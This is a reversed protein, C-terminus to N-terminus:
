IISPLCHHQAFCLICANGHDGSAAGRGNAKPGRAIEGHLIQTNLEQKPLVTARQCTEARQIGSTPFPHM